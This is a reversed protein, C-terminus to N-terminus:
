LLTFGAAAVAKADAAPDLGPTTLLGGTIAGTAAAAMLRGEVPRLAARGAALRIEARPNAIRTVVAALLVEEPELPAADGLPTGPIPVLLNLPISDAGLARLEVALEIRQLRTEGLGLIGGSCLELGAAKAARAAARKEEMTHTTCVRHFFSPATEINCHYRTVGAEALAGFAEAGLLGLSACLRMPRGAPGARGHLRRYVGLAAALEAASLRRGSAVLSFRRAGASAAEAMAAEAEGAGVLPRAAAEPFWRASQACWACDEPCGSSRANMIACLEFGDGFRRFRLAAALEELERLAYDRTMRELDEIGPARGPDEAAELAAKLRKDM